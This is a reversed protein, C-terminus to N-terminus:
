FERDVSDIRRLAAVLSSPYSDLVIWRLERPIHKIHPYKEELSPNEALFEEWARDDDKYREYLTDNM